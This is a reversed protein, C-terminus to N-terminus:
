SKKTLEVKQRKLQKGAAEITEKTQTVVKDSQVRATSSKSSNQSKVDETREKIDQAAQDLNHKADEIKEEAESRLQQSTVKMDDSAKHAKKSVEKSKEQAVQQLEDKKQRAEDLLEESRAQADKSTEDIRDKAISAKERIMEGAEDAKKDAQELLERGKIEADKSAEQLHERAEVAKKATVERADEAKEQINEATTHAFEKANNLMGKVGQEEGQAELKMETYTSVITADAGITVIDSPKIAKKGEAFTKLGSQSVEMTDVYGDVSDFYIDTVKGLEKGEVTLVNTKVLHKNSESISHVSEGLNSVSQIVSADPIVVADEGVNRVSDMHIAKASSFLGGSSVLLAVVRHDSPDYAVDDVTAVISGTDVTIINLGLVNKASVLM